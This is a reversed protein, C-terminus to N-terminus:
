LAGQCYKINIQLKRKILFLSLFTVNQFSWRILFLVSSTFSCINFKSNISSMPLNTVTHGSKAFNGWKPLNKFSLKIKPCLRLGLKAFKTHWQAVKYQHLLGFIFSYDPWRTVSSPLYAGVVQRRDAFLVLEFTTEAVIKFVEKRTFAVQGSGILFVLSYKLM